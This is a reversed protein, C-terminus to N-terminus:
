RRRPRRREFDVYESYVIRSHPNSLVIEQRICKTGWRIFLFRRPVRHVIQRLTDRVVAECLVSDGVIQGEVSAWGDSWAFRRLTDGGNRVAACSDPPSIRTPVLSDHLVAAAEIRSQVVSTAVSELRRLRIGLAKIREADTRHMHEYEDCRLRLAQVSAAAEGLRTTYHEIQQTLATQNCTLRRNEDLASRTASLAAAAVVTAAAAYLFLIKKM